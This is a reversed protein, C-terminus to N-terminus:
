QGNEDHIPLLPLDNGGLEDLSDKHLLYYKQQEKNLLSYDYQYTYKGKYFFKENPNEMPYKYIYLTDLVSQLIIRKKYQGEIITYDLKSSAFHLKDDTKKYTSKLVILTDGKTKSLEIYNWGEMMPYHVELIWDEFDNIGLNDSSEVVESIAKKQSQYTCSICSCFILGILVNRKM